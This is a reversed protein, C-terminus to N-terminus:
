LWGDLVSTLSLTSKYKNEREPDKHGTILYVTGKKRETGKWWHEIIVKM